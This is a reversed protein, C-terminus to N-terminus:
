SVRGLALMAKHWGKNLRISSVHPRTSQYYLYWGVLGDWLRLDGPDHMKWGLRALSISSKRMNSTMSTTVWNEVADLGGSSVPDVHDITPFLDWLGQHSDARGKIMPFATPIEHSIAYLASPCILRNGTYRDVFGDSAFVRLAQLRTYKREARVAAVETTGDSDFLKIKPAKGPPIVPYGSQILAAADQARGDTLAQASEELVATPDTMLCTGVFRLTRFQVLAFGFLVISRDNAAPVCGALGCFACRGCDGTM